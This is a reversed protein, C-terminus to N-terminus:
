NLDKIALTLTGKAILNRGASAEVTYSLLSGFARDSRSTMRLTDGPSAPHTYKMNAAALFFIEPKESSEIGKEIRSFGWLLGSTQALADTILVGPMIPTGPFHGAFHPEDPRIEREAVILQDPVLKIV